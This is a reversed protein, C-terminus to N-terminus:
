RYIRRENLAQQFARANRNHDVLSEAFAHYGSFDSKACMYIYDHDSAFLVADIAKKSPVNIPGPPLGSNLYTNYASPTVLHHRLVRNISFDGIAYIVTPDSQLRMGKKLRNLYLGAIIPQEEPHAQQEAQVISALTTVESQTLGIKEARSKRGANWFAKYESAMRALFEEPDTDWEMLYTDPLFLTTITLANFGYRELTAPDQFVELLEANDVEIASGVMIAIDSVSRASNFRVKVEEEGNGARLWDILEPANMDSRLTYKGAVVNTGTYNKKAMVAEMMEPHRVLKNQKLWSLVDHETWDSQIYLVVDGNPLKLAKSYLLQYFYWGAAAGGLIVIVTLWLGIRKKKKKAM